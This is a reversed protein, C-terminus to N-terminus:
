RDAAGRGSAAALCTSATNSGTQRGSNAAGPRAAQEPGRGGTPANGTLLAAVCCLLATACIVVRVVASPVALQVHCHTSRPLAPRALAAQPWGPVWGTPIHWVGCKHAASIHDRWKGGCM